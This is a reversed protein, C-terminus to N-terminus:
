SFFLDYILMKNAHTASAFTQLPYFPFYSSNTPFSACFILRFVIFPFPLLAPHAPMYQYQLTVSGYPLGRAFGVGDNAPLMNLLTLVQHASPPWHLPAVALVIPTETFGVKSLCMKYSLEWFSHQCWLWLSSSKIYICVYM